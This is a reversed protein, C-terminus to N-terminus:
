GRSGEPDTAREDEPAAGQEALEEVSLEAPGDDGLAPDLLPATWIGLDADLDRVARILWM